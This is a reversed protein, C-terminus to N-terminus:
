KKRKTRSKKKRRNKSSSSSATTSSPLVLENSLEIGEIDLKGQSLVKLEQLIIADDVTDKNWTLYSRKMQNAIQRILEKQEEGEKGEAETILQRVIHGYHRMKYTRAPYELQEPRGAFTEATPIPYPSDVDLKFDSMIFLHDWLKHKFDPTDRLHPNLNGIVDIISQAVANRKERDEITMCHEVMRHVNRGYEPIALDPRDTNYEVDPIHSLDKTM